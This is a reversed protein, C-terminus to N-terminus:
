RGAATVSYIRAMLVTVSDAVVPVAPLKPKVAVLSRAALKMGIALQLYLELQASSGIPSIGCDAHRVIAISVDVVVDPVSRPPPLTICM